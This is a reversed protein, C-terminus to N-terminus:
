HQEKNAGGGGIFFIRDQFEQLSAIYYFLLIVTVQRLVYVYLKSITEKLPM